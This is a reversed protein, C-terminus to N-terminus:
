DTEQDMLGESVSGLYMPLLLLATEGTVSGRSASDLQLPVRLDIGFTLGRQVPPLLM